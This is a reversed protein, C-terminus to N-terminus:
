CCCCRDSCDFVVGIPVISTRIWGKWDVDPDLTGELREISTAELGRGAVVDPDLQRCIRDGELLSTWIWGKQDVDKWDVGRGISM